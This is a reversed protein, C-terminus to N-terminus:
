EPTQHRVGRTDAAGHWVLDLQCSLLLAGDADFACMGGVSGGALV